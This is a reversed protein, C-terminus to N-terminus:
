GDTGPGDADSDHTGRGEGEQGAATKHRSALWAVVHRALEPLREDLVINHRAGGLEVFTKEPSPLSDYLARVAQPDVVRENGAQVVLVPLPPVQVLERELRRMAGLGAWLFSATFTHVWFPDDSESHFPPPLRLHPRVRQLGALLLVKWWPPRRRLKVGPALLILGAIPCAPDRAAALRLALMGGMSLGALFVPRGPQEQVVLDLVSRADDLYQDFSLVHGREGGSRGFGRLDMAYVAHGAAHLVDGLAVFNGSHAGMGHLYLVAAGGAPGAPSAEAVPTWCRLFLRTGDPTEHWRGVHPSDARRPPALTLGTLDLPADAM